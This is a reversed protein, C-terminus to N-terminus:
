LMKNWCVASEEDYNSQMRHYFWWELELTVSVLSYAM